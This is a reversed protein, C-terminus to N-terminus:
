SIGLNALEALKKNILADQIEDGTMKHDVHLPILVQTIAGLTNILGAWAYPPEIRILYYHDILRNGSIYFAAHVRRQIYHPEGIDLKFGMGAIYNGDNPWDQPLEFAGAETLIINSYVEIVQTLTDSTVDSVSSIVRAKIESRGIRASIPSRTPLRKESEIITTPDVIRNIDRKISM